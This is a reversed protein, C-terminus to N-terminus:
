HIFVGSTYEFKLAIRFAHNCIYINKLDENENDKIESSGRSLTIIALSFSQTNPGLRTM